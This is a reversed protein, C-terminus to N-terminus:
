LTKSKDNELSITRTIHKYLPEVRTNNLSRIQKIPFKFTFYENENRECFRFFHFNFGINTAKNKFAEFDM